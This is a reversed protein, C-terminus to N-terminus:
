FYYCVLACSCQFCIVKQRSDAIPVTSDDTQRGTHRDTQSFHIRASQIPALSQFTYRRTGLLPSGILKKVYGVNPTFQYSADNLWLVGRVALFIVSM